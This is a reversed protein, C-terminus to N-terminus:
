EILEMGNAFFLYAADDIQSRGQSLDTIDGPTQILLSATIGHGLEFSRLADYADKGKYITAAASASALDAFSTLM